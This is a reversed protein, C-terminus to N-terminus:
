CAKPEHQTMIKNMINKQFLVCQTLFAENRVHRKVLGCRTSTGTYGETESFANRVPTIWWHQGAIERQLQSFIGDCPTSHFSSQFCSAGRKREGASKGRPRIRIRWFASTPKSGPSCLTYLIVFIVTIGSESSSGCSRSNSTLLLILSM